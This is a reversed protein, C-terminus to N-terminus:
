YRMSITVSSNSLQISLAKFVGHIWKVLINKDLNNYKEHFERVPLLLQDVYPSPKNPVDKNTRRFLRPIDM